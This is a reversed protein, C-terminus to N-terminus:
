GGFLKKLEDYVARAQIVSLGDLVTRPSWEPTYAAPAKLLAEKKEKLTKAEGAKRKGLPTVIVKKRQPAAAKVPARFVKYAKVPTYENQSTYMGTQTDGTLMGQAMMQSLLASISRPNYGKATLDEMAKVRTIGPNDRVYNFTERSVNNTTQFLHKM